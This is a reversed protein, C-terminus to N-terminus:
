VGVKVFYGQRSIDHTMKVPRRGASDIQLVHPGPGLNSFNFAGQADSRTRRTTTTTVGGEVRSWSLLVRTAPVPNNNQDVVVGRLEHDGWDLVLAVDLEDGPALRLGRVLISPSSQSAITLEGAPAQAVRFNGSTDSSVVASATQSAKNRLVLDLNSVPAGDVNVLRGSVTGFEYPDVVVDFRAANTAVDIKQRHDEHDPAGSISLYYPVPAEVADFSYRGRRDTTTRYATQGGVRRLSVSRGALPSGTASRVVGSVSTWAQIPQMRVDLALSAVESRGSLDVPVSHDLFGPLQFRVMLSRTGPKLPVELRYRGFADTRASAVGVLVPLVTVAELREGAVGVVDGEIVLTDDAVLLIDANQLGSRAALRAPRYAGSAATRVEYDGAPLGAFEYFGSSDTTTTPRAPSDEGKSHSEEATRITVISVPIGEIGLGHMDMVRGGISSNHASPTHDSSGPLWRSYSGSGSRGCRGFIDPVGKGCRADAELTTASDAPVADQWATAVAAFVSRVASVIRASLAAPGSRERSAEDHAPADATGACGACSAVPMEQHPREEFSLFGYAALALTSVAAVSTAIRRAGRKPSGANRDAAPAHRDKM